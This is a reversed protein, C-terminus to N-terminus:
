VEFSLTKTKKHCHPGQGVCERTMDVQAITSTAMTIAPCLEIPLRSRQPIGNQWATNAYPWLQLFCVPSIVCVIIVCLPM